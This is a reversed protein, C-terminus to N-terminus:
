AALEKLYDFERIARYGHILNGKGLSTNLYSYKWKMAEAALKVTDFKLKKKGKILIVRAKTKQIQEYAARLDPHRKIYRWVTNHSTKYRKAIAYSSEGQQIHEMVPDFQLKSKRIHKPTHNKLWQQFEVVCPERDVAPNQSWNSAGYKDDLERMVALSRETTEKM